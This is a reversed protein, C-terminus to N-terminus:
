GDKGQRFWLAPDQPVNDQRVEIYLTESRATGAGEGEQSMETTASTASLGGMLGIPADTAVVEGTKVYVAGLGALIFLTDPQPELIVVQGLDLLPGQYRVTAATPATVLAGPRTGLLIGPRVIGAADAEYAGRLILGQAPLALDGIRAELDPLSVAHEDVAINTVGSAFADLTESSEILIATNVPDETFRRPLDTREAMAQSLATRATQVESLGKQMQATAQTQIARLNQVDELDNRLGNARANLAPTLEALLMGARATGTPGDPHLFSTPSPTAGITQLTGLFSAIEGDRAALQRTLQTERLSARRLGDRMAALGTEYAKITATLAKIRDRASDAADLQAAAEQLQVGADRALATGDQAVLAAPWLCALLVLARIM